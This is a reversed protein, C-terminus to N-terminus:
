KFSYKSKVLVYIGYGGFATGVPIAFLFLVFLIIAPIRIFKKKRKMFFGILAMAIPFIAVYIYKALTLTEAQAGTFYSLSISAFGVSGILMLLVSLWKISAEYPVGYIKEQESKLERLIERAKEEDFQNM